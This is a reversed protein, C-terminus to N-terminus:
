FSAKEKKPSQHNNEKSVSTQFRHGLRSQRGSAAHWSWLKGALTAGCTARLM